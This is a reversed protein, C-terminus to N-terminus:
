THKLESIWFKHNMDLFVIYFTNEAIYGAIRGKQGGVHKIVAWAVNEDVHQPHIYQTKDKPPFTGYITIQEQRIAEDKTLQCLDKLRVILSNLLNQQHWLELTQPADVPQTQDLFIFSFTLLERVSTIKREDRINEKRQRGGKRSRDKTM